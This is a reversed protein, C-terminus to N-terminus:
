TETSSRITFLREGYQVVQGNEVFVEVVEGDCTSKIENMLKMAEIICLTQGVDVRDGIKVFAPAGPKQASYFTGM